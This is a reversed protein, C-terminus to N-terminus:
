YYAGRCVSCKRTTLKRCSPEDCPAGVTKMLEALSSAYTAMENTSTVRKCIDLDWQQIPNLSPFDPHMTAIRFIERTDESSPPVPLRRAGDYVEFCPSTTFKSAIFSTTSQVRYFEDIIMIKGLSEPTLPSSACMLYRPTPISSTPPIPITIEGTSREVLVVGYCLAKPHISASHVATNRGLREVTQSAWLLDEEIIDAPVGSGARYESAYVRGLLVVIDALNGSGGGDTVYRIQAEFVKSDIGSVVHCLTTRAKAECHFVFVFCTAVCDTCFGRIPSDDDMRGWGREEIREYEAQILYYHVTEQLTMVARYGGPGVELEKIKM